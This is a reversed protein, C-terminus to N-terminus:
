LFTNPTDLLHQIITDGSNTDYDEEKTKQQLLAAKQYCEVTYGNSVKKLQKNSHLM